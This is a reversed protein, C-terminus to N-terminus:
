IRERIAANLLDFRNRLMQAAFRFTVFNEVLSQMHRELDRDNRDHFMINQALPEPHLRMGTASVEVQESDSLELPGGRGGYRARREDIAEGLKQQFEAVSVDQPRFGPTDLNAVNNAILRHRQGTFQVLRELTPIGDSNTLGEIM